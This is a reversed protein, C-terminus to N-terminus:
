RMYGELEDKAWAIVDKVSQGGQTMKAVMTTMTARNYIQVAIDPPAPYGAISPTANHWPRIPYNYVTGLPPEVKAWVDFDAMSLFPPIDYGDVANCLTEVQARQCLWGLLEKAASQNRSFSWLGWFFPLYPVFRGKTGGPSPFTWCDAAVPPNDRKAVAWASPPNFILASKGSILARNNSADDYSYVAAPLSRTLQAMYALVARVPDSDVTIEGKANVLEAGFSRFLAGVFDVSDTTQGLGLAFPLNAKMALPALDLLRQWTWTDSISTHEPRAPYMAQVDMGNERFFSIRACSPKYQTGSSTPVAMWHGKIKSLYENVPNIAGYQKILGDVVDDVPALADRYNFIDWALFALADHGTRAQAEAAYTLQLKNGVTTIFDITVDVKNKQAWADILKRMAANGAPVWHDWLGINLKGAAHASRIHVLPLAATGAALRLAARRSLNKRM